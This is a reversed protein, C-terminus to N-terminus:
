LEPLEEAISEPTIEAAQKPREPPTETQVPKANGRNSLKYGFFCVDTAGILMMLYGFGQCVIEALSHVNSAANRTAGYIYTYFDSGFRAETVTYGTYSDLLYYGGYIAAAGVLIGLVCFWNVRKM